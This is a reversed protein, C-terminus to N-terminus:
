IDSKIIQKKGDIFGIVKFETRRNLQHEEESCEVGNSCHNLHQTEGYGKAVIRQKDIGNEIIYKVAADARRQSLAINYQDSGRADTHSGLEVIIDPNDKMLQVVMDLDPKADDRIFSKDFDYYINKLVIAKGIEMKEMFLEVVLTDQRKLCETEITKSKTYYGEKSGVFTNIDKCKVEAFFKGNVVKLEDKTIDKLDNFINVKVEELPVVNDQEDLTKTIVHVILQSPPAFEFFYIDDSGKGGDRNSSFYGKEDNEIFIISFDDKPSNLPYKLNEPTSWNDKSGKAKFIDLGGMGPHGDSSFFLTGNSDMYPFMEKGSTNIESGANQPKSWSGNSNRTSFYIDTGGFGGPMDSVFYLVNGDPSLVPHGVSYDEPKNYAFASPTSWKGNNYRASYIELRNEYDPLEINEIWSTPDINKNKKNVRVMKTRTFFFEKSATSFHGPGNHFKDNLSNIQRIKNLNSSEDVLYLKLYPNGTWGHIDENTLMRNDKRDSTFIFGNAFPTLGFDSNSSNLSEVNQIEWFNPEVMWKKANKSGELYIEAANSTPELTKYKEFQAIADDYLAETKLLKGYMLVDKPLPNEKTALRSIWEKAQKTENIMLYCSAVNRIDEDSPSHFNFHSNYMSIAKVFDFNNMLQKAKQADSNQSWLLGAHLITM